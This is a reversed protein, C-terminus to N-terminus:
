GCNSIIEDLNRTLFIGKGQSSGEPKVIYTKKKNKKSNLADGASEGVGMIENRIEGTEGPYLWTKPFFGYEAEYERRMRMLNRGLQNKKCVVCIGPFQSVKQYPLMKQLFDASIPLDHFSVDFRKVTPLDM